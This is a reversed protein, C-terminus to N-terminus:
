KKEKQGLCNVFDWEAKTPRPCPNPHLPVLKGTEELVRFTRGALDRVVPRGHSDVAIVDMGLISM